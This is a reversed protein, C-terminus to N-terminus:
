PRSAAASLAYRMRNTRLSYRRLPRLISPCLRHTSVPSRPVATRSGNCTSTPTCSALPPTLISALPNSSITRRTLATPILASSASRLIRCLTGGSDSSSRAAISARRERWRGRRSRAKQKTSSVSVRATSANVLHICRHFCVCSLRNQGGQTLEALLRPSRRRAPWLPTIPRETDVVCHRM